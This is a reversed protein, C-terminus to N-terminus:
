RRFQRSGVEIHRPRGAPLIELSSRFVRAARLPKVLIRCEMSGREKSEVFAAPLTLPGVGLNQSRYLVEV